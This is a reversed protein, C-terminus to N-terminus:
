ISQKTMYYIIRFVVVPITSIFGIINLKYFDTAIINLKKVIKEEPNVIRNEEKNIETKENKNSTTKIFSIINILVAFVFLGTHDYTEYINLFDLYKGAKNEVFTFLLLFLFVGSFFGNIVASSNGKKYKKSVFYCSMCIIFYPIIDTMIYENLYYPVSDFLSYAQMGVNFMYNIIYIFIIGTIFLLIFM